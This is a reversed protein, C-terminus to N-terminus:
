GCSFRCALILRVVVGIADMGPIDDVM